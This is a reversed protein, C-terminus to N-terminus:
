PASNHNPYMGLAPARNWIRDCSVSNLAHCHHVIAPHFVILHSFASLFYTNRGRFFRFSVSIHTIYPIYFLETPIFSCHIIHPFPLISNRLFSLIRAWLTLEPYSHGWIWLGTLPSLFDLDIFIIFSINKHTNTGSRQLPTPSPSRNGM